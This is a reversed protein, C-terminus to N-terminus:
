DVAAATGLGFHLRFDNSSELSGGSMVNGRQRQGNVTLYVTTGVAHLPSKPGGTLALGVWHNKDNSVNLLLIAASHLYARVRASRNM